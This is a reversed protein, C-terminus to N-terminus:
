LVTVRDNVAIDATRYEPLISAAAVQEQVREVKVKAILQDRRYIGLVDGINVTHWGLDVVVFQWDPNIQIIKGSAENLGGLPGVMVQIKELETPGGGAQAPMRQALEERARSSLVLEAQLQSIQGEMQALQGEMQALRGQLTEVARAEAELRSVVQNVEKTKVELAESLKQSRSQEASLKAEVLQKAQITQSLKHETALRKRHESQRAFAFGAACFALVVFGVVAWTQKKRLWQQGKLWETAKLWPKM